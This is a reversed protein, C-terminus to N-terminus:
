VGIVLILISVIGSAVYEMRAHGFPHGKDAPKGALRISVLSIVSSAADSLNNFADGTVAISGFLTGALFKAAFLLLNVVIGVVSGLRGYQERTEPRGVAEPQSVFRRVLLQRLV